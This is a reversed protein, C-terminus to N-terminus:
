ASTTRERLQKLAKEIVQQKTKGTTATLEDLALLAAPSLWLQVRTEGAEKRRDYFAKQYEKPKKM